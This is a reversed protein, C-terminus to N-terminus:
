LFSKQKVCVLFFSDKLIRENADSFLHRSMKSGSSWKYKSLLEFYKLVTFNKKLVDVNINWDSQNWFLIKFNLM